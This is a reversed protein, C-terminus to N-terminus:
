EQAVRKRAELREAFGLAQSNVDLKMPYIAKREIRDALEALARV